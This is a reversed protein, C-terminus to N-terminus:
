PFVVDSGRKWALVDRVIDELGHRLRYDITQRVRTLDPIRCRIDEFGSPFARKYSFHEIPAAPNVLRVVTEALERITM